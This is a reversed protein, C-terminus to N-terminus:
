DLRTAPRPADLVLFPVGGYVPGEDGGKARKHRGKGEDRQAEVVGGGEAGKKEVRRGFEKEKGKAGGTGEAQQDVEGADGVLTESFPRGLEDFWSGAEEQERIRERVPTSEERRTGAKKLVREEERSLKERLSETERRVGEWREEERREEGRREEQRRKEERRLEELKYEEQL